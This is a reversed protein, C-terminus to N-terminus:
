INETKSDTKNCVRERPISELNMRENGGIKNKKQGSPASNLPPM